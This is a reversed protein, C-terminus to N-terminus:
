APRPDRRMWWVHPGDDPADAEHTVRFGFREYLAVNDRTGTELVLAHGDAHALGIAHELLARGIGRGQAAPEVALQDLFWHPESPTLEAIWDWFAQYRAAADDTLAALLADSGHLLDADRDMSGPPELAMVGLGDAAEWIWGEGAFAEDVIRFQGRVRHALDPGDGMPWTAMPERLMARSLVGSLHRLREPVARLVIRATVPPPPVDLREVVRFRELVVHTDDDLVLDPRRAQVRLDELYGGWFHEHAARFEAANAYGEGEDRGHEDDVDALRVVRCSTTEVIAIGQEDSDLLVQREGPQPLREAELEYEVLLGATATKTGALALATLDNRLRGPFAFGWEPLRDDDHM